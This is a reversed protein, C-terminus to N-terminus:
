FDQHIYSNVLKMSDGTFQVDEKVEAKKQEGRINTMRFHGKYLQDIIGVEKLELENLKDTIDKKENKSGIGRINEANDLGEISSAVMYNGIKNKSEIEVEDEDM